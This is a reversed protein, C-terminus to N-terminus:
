CSAQDFMAHSAGGGSKRGSSYMTDDAVAETDDNAGGGARDLTAAHNAAGDVCPAAMPAAGADSLDPSGPTVVVSADMADNEDPTDNPPIGVEETVPDTEAMAMFDLAQRMIM